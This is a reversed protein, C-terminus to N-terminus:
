APAVEGRYLGALGANLGVLGLYLGALGANLGVDGAYEGVEGAGNWAVDGFYEHTGRGRVTYSLRLQNVSWRTRLETRSGRCVRGGTRHVRRGTGGVRWGTGSIPSYDSKHYYCSQDDLGAEGPNLGDEGCYPWFPAALPALGALPAFPAFPAFPCPFM